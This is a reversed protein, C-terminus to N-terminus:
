RDRAAELPRRPADDVRVPAALLAEDYEYEARVVTGCWLAAQGAYPFTWSVVGRLPIMMGEVCEYVGYECTWPTLVLRGGEDRYRESTARVLAGDASFEATMGVTTGRDTITVSARRDDLARWRLEDSPLLATPFWVAECLYRLLSARASEPSPAIRAVPIFGALTARSTGTGDHYEDRVRFPLLPLMYVSADWRSAIPRTMFSETATFAHWSGTAGSRLTGEQELRVRAIRRHWKEPLAYRLYRAVPDSLTKM